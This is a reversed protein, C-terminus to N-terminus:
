CVIDTIDQLKDIDENSEVKGDIVDCVKDCQGNHLIADVPKCKIKDAKAFNQKISFGLFVFVLILFIKKM